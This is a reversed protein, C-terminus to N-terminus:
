QSREAYHLLKKIEFPKLERYAGIKMNDMNLPGISFRHLRIVPLGFHAMLERIQRNKGEYLTLDFVSRDKDDFYRFNDVKMAQYDVGKVKLGTELAKTVDFGMKGKVIVRYTKDMDYSPHMIKQAFEGDNTLILAGTTDMDLRGVPYIRRKDHIMNIIVPRDLPDTVTSLVGRPKNILYYVHDEKPLIPKNDVEIADQPSVKLGMEKVVEGNVKVRGKEILEEAKRRSAIGAQAIVKQLRTQKSYNM